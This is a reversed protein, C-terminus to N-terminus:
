TVLIKLIKPSMSFFITEFTHLEYNRLVNFHDNLSSLSLKFDYEYTNEGNFTTMSRLITVRVRRTSGYSM